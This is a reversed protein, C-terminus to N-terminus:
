DQKRWLGWRGKKVADLTNESHTGLFLHDPNCCLRNDCKHCVLLGDPIDGYTLLYAVKHSRITTYKFNIKGYDGWIVGMWNWCDDKGKINVSKWFKEGVHEIMNATIKFDNDANRNEDRHKKNKKIECTKCYPHLHFYEGNRNVYFYEETAPYWEKCISCQKNQKKDIIM